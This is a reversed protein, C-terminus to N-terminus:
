FEKTSWQEDKWQPSIGVANPTLGQSYSVVGVVVVAVVGLM